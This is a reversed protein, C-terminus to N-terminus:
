RPGSGPHGEGTVQEFLEPFVRSVRDMLYDGYPGRLDDVSRGDWRGLAAEQRARETPQCGPLPAIQADFAPDLFLPFSYRDREPPRVRHPTSRLRGGTMRELMDGLNCVIADDIPAVDVWEQGVRVELGGTEDQVLLTLLGYDTHEAVGWGREPRPTAPYHFIRFLVTPEACWRDFWDRDLDLSIAIGSLVARGVETLRDMWEPVLERLESPRQPYLNPGHLPVGARVRPDDVSLDTGFYLGEKVDPVGATLEAGVPFWGRWASGGHRMAIRDKESGDLAFFDVAADHLRQRLAPDVGHGVLQLAGPGSCAVRIAAATRTVAANSAGPDLLPAIDVVPIGARAM